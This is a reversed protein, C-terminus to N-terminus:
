SNINVLLPIIAKNREFFNLPLLHSFYEGLSKYKSVYKGNRTSKLEEQTNPNRDLTVKKQGSPSGNANIAIHGAPL